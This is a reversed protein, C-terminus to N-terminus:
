LLVIVTGFMLSIFAIHISYIAIHLTYLYANLLLLGMVFLINPPTICAM